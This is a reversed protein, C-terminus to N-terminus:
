GKFLTWVWSLLDGGIEGSKPIAWAWIVAGVMNVVFFLAFNMRAVGAMLFVVARLPGFFHGVFITIAGWRAFADRGKFVLEPYKHLPWMKLIPGGYRWGLWYSLVSGGISGLAGGIWIPMFDLAGTSVVAGVGVLIATSPIVISLIALTEAFAFVFALPGAWARHQSIFGIIADVIADM